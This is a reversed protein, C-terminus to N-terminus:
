RWRPPFEGQPLNTYVMEWCLVEENNITVSGPVFEINICGNSYGNATDFYAFQALESSGVGIDQLFTDLCVTDDCIMRANLENQVNLIDTMSSRFYHNTMPEYFLENGNGTNTIREEPINNQKAREEVGQKVATMAEAGLNDIISDQTAFLEKQAAAATAAMALYRQNGIRNGAIICAASGGFTLMSPWYVSVTTKVKDMPTEATKIAEHYKPSAKHVMYMTGGMGVLGVGTCISPAHKKGLAVLATWYKKLNIKTKM